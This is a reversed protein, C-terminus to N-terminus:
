RYQPEPPFGGVDFMARLPDPQLLPSRAAPLVRDVRQIRLMESSIYM